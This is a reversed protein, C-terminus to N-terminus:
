SRALTDRAREREIRQRDQHELLAVWTVEPIPLVRDSDVSKTDELRLVGNVRQVTKAPTFVGNDLDLDGWRMGM